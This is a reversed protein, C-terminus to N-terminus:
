FVPRYNTNYTSIPKGTQFSCGPAMFRRMADNLQSVCGQDNRALCDLWSKYAVNTLDKNVPAIPRGLGDPLNDKWNVRFQCTPQFARAKLDNLANGSQEPRSYLWGIFQEYSSQAQQEGSARRFRTFFDRFIFGEIVESTYYKYNLFFAVMVIVIAAKLKWTLKLKM